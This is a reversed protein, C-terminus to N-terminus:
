TLSYARTTCANAGLVCAGLVCTVGRKIFGRSDKAKEVWKSFNIKGRENIIEM